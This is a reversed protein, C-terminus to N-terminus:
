WNGWFDIVVVKGRYDSLKFAQGNEDTAEWDPAVKGIQLHDLEFLFGKAREAYTAGRKPKADAYDRIVRELLKRGEAADDGDALMSGHHFLSAAQVLAHPSRETVTKLASRIKEEGVVGTMRPLMGALRDLTPSAIHEALLTDIGALADDRLDFESALGLVEMWAKEATPTAKAEVAIARFQPVYERGPREEWLKEQAAEDKAENLAKYLEQRAAQYRKSLADLRAAADTESSQAWLPAGALLLALAAWWGTIRDSRM